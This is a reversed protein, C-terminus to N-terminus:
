LRIAPRGARDQKAHHAEVQRAVDGWTMTTNKKLWSKADTGLAQYTEKGNISREKLWATFEAETTPYSTTREPDSTAATVEPNPGFFEALESAPEAPTGGTVIVREGQEPYTVPGTAPPTAAPVIEGTATDIAPANPRTNVIRIPSRDMKGVKGIAVAKVTIPKGIWDALADHTEYLIQRNTPSLIFGFPAERFWAVLALKAEGRQPHTEEETFEVITLTRAEGKLHVPKLFREYDSLNQKM